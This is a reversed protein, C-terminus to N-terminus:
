VKDLFEKIKTELIDTLEKLSDDDGDIMYSYHGENLATYNSSDKLINFIIEKM